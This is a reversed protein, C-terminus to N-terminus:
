VPEWGLLERAEERFEEEGGTMARLRALVERRFERRMAALHNTVQTAPIGHRRALEVYTPREPSDAGELDYAVFVEFAVQRGGRLMRERLAQVAESFLARTWERQFWVEPDAAPDASQDEFERRAAAMDLSLVIAQGGRKQRSASERERLVFRDLCIRLFTRFRSRTPDYDDFYGRTHARSFFEQVLDEADEHDARWRFRLYAYVPRWYSRALADWARISADPDSGSLAEVVSRRTIPFRDTM